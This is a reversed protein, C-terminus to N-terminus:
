TYNIETTHLLIHRVEMVCRYHMKYPRSGTEPQIRILLAECLEFQGAASAADLLSTFMM